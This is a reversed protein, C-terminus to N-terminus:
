GRPEGLCDLMNLMNLMYWSMNFKNVIERTQPMNNLCLDLVWSFTQCPIKPRPDGPEWLFDLM